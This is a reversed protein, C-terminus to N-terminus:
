DNFPDFFDSADELPPRNAYENPPRDSSWAWWPCGCQCKYFEQWKKRRDHTYVPSRRNLWVQQAQLSSQRCTPCCFEIAHVAQNTWEPPTLAFADM